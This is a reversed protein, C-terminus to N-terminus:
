LKSEHHKAKQRHIEAEKHHGKKEETDALKHHGLAAKKLNTKAYNIKRHFAEHHLKETAVDGVKASQLALEKLREAEKIAIRANRESIWINFAVSSFYITVLIIALIIAFFLLWRFDFPSKPKTEIVPTDVKTDTVVPTDVNTDTVAPTDVKTDVVPTIVDDVTTSTTPAVIPTAFNYGGVIVYTSFSTVKTEYYYYLGDSSVQSTAYEVWKNDVLKKLLINQPNINNTGFWSKLVKFRITATAINANPITSVIELYSYVLGDTGAIALPALLPKSSETVTFTSSVNVGDKITVNINTVDLDNKNFDFSGSSGGTIPTETATETLKPAVYSSGGGSSPSACIGSSCRGSTCIDNNNCSVGNAQKSVTFDEIVWPNGTTKCYGEFTFTAFTTGYVKLTITDGTNAGVSNLSYEGDVIVGSKLLTSDKYAQVTLGNVTIDDGAVEGKVWCPDTSVALVINLISIFIFFFLLLKITKNSKM